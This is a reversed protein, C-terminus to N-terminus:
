VGKQFNRILGHSLYTSTVNKMCSGVCIEPEISFRTVLIGFFIVLLLFILMIKFEISRSRKLQKVREIESLDAPLDM